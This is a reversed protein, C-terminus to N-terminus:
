QWFSKVLTLRGDVIKSVCLFEGNEDYVRYDQNEIGKYTMRVGNVVSRKQKENLKICPLDEFVRDTPILVEKLTGTDGSKLTGLEELTHSQSLDFIGTKIRRLTNMYAGTGLKNGIDECLTRIYTGKSCSVDITVSKGDIKLIDISNITVKRPKREVEIGQRALEYLKKGNQKIASYMPPVQEIEGIFSMVAARIEDETCNVKKESLVQGEADQTDTTKGLILEAVYEKDSLTLMDAIKTAAGICIPLVGTAMPDLTGTHGVKKIGTLRRIFYVIDHSTKGQPKDVIIIGNM